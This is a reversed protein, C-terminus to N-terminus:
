RLKRWLHGATLYGWAMGAALGVSHAINAVPGMLGTWCLVFWGLMMVVTPRNLYLGSVPDFKGRLWVYGLLGYVVGSFGAFLPGHALFQLYNAAAAFFLVQAMLYWTGHRREVLTGLDRLWLMNFLLHIIGLHPFIPTVLRWVEGAAIEPLGKDWIVWPGEIRVQTVLFVNLARRDKGFQTLISTGVSILILAGTLLATRRVDYAHWASRVRVHQKQRATEAKQEATRLQQAQAEAQTYDPNDPDALFQELLEAARDLLREDHAWIVWDGESSSETENDIDQAYLYSSFVRAHHESGVRGIRRM